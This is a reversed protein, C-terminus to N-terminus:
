NVLFRCSRFGFADIIPVIVRGVILKDGGLALGLAVLTWLM